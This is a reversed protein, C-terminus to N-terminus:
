LAKFNVTYRFTQIAERSTKSYRVQQAVLAAVKRIIREDSTTTLSKIANVHVPYGDANIAVQFVFTVNYNYRIDNANVHSVITRKTPLRRSTLDNGESIDKGIVSSSKTGNRKHPAGFPHTNNGDQTSTNAPSSTALKTPSSRKSVTSTTQTIIKECASLTSNYSASREVPTADLVVANITQQEFPATELTQPLVPPSAIEYRFFLLVFFLALMVVLASLVGTRYDRTNVIPLSAM